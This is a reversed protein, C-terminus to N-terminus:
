PAPPLNKKVYFFDIIGIAITILILVKLPTWALADGLLYLAFLGGLIRTLGKITHHELVWAKIEALM